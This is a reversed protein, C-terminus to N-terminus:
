VGTLFSLLMNKLIDCRVKNRKKNDINKLSNNTISYRMLMEERKTILDKEWLDELLNEAQSYSIEDSLNRLVYSIYDEESSETITMIKIFGNGGRKSEIYYGKIPTFRTTLVYNIQSPACDFQNALDNRGIEVMGDAEDLLAKLFKEIDSTLGSM